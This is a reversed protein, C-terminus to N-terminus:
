LKGIVKDSVQQPVREYAKPSMVSSARGQTVSRLATAYGFMEALPVFAKIITLTNDTTLGEVTGRRSSIDAMVDGLFKTPTNIELSMVPELLVAGARTLAKRATEFAGIRFALDSSDVEHFSGDILEVRVNSVPYGALPGSELAMKVGKEIPAIFQQPITGGKISNVFEFNSESLPSIIIVVHAYQGHGGTQKVYKGVEKVEKTIGEKYRVKPKSIKVPVNFESKLRQANIELHLEGMGHMVLENTVSDKKIILTPDESSIKSLAMALADLQEPRYPEIAQYIVPEPFIPPEFAFKIDESSLTDGTTTKKLGGVVVIDGATMEKIQEKKDAHIMYIRDIKETKNKTTNYVRRGGNMKGSYVRLFSLKGLFQDTVIKFVLAWFKENKSNKLKHKELTELNFIPTEGIDSPAPLYACISDLLFQVGINKFASGCVVPVFKNHIVANRLAKRVLTKSVPKNEILKELIEDNTESLAELLERHTRQWIDKLGAPIDRESWESGDECLEQDYIRAKGEIVDVIGTFDKEAGIPIAVPLIKQSFNERMKRLVKWYDSGVRDMKNIFAIIPINYKSAQRWVTESQPEVGGVGCFVVVCGDLVRLSREVEATFDVHGPTDIINIQYEDAEPLPPTLKPTSNKEKDSYHSFPAWFCTIVASQITIGRKREEELFDTTTTGDHVEGMRWIKGTYYLIRETTTTKGADIHAVIGINRLKSIEVNM